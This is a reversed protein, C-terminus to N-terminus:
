EQTQQTVSWLVKELALIVRADALFVTAIKQVVLRARAIGLLVNKGILVTM